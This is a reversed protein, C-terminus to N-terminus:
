VYKRESATFQEIATVPVVPRIVLTKLQEPSTPIESLVQYDLRVKIQIVKEQLLHVVGLYALRDIENQILYCGVVINNLFNDNRRIVFVEEDKIYSIPHEFPAPAKTEKLLDHILKLLILLACGLMLIAFLLWKVSVQADVNIFLSVVSSLFGSAGIALALGPMSFIGNIIKDKLRQHEGILEIKLELAKLFDTGFFDAQIIVLTKAGRSVAGATTPSM